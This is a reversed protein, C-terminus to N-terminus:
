QAFYVHYDVFDGPGVSDIVVDLKDRTVAEKPVDIVREVWANVPHFTEDAIQVGNVRVVIRSKGDPATRLLLKGERGLIANKLTFRESKGGGIRRGGDFMDRREDWPDALIKMDTWGNQPRSFAYDHRKESVLDGVDCEDRLEVGKPFSRPMAGTGLVHWDARYVVHEYGGCIVNGEVPFRRVVEPGFWTPFSGWWTPFIALLEPRESPPVREMLEITAPMGHVGARAFPLDHYGGLGIIDLGPKDSAYLIAGADGVLVRNVQQPALWRGLVLHQDRINRCARGFFWKQDRMKTELHQHGSFLLLAGLAVRLPRVRLALGVAVGISIAVGWPVRIDPMQGPPRTVVGVIQVVVVTGLTAWVLSPAAREDKSAGRAGAGKAGARSLLLEKAGLAALVLVWAVAPMTYRENQWRVQGNMAVLGLWLAVQAWLLVAMHRTRQFALPVLALFVIGVGWGVEGVIAKAWPKQLTEDTFLGRLLGDPALPGSFHYEINRFAAYGLNFRYDALKEEPTMFPNNLALKVIAGNASTEGTLARNALSQAALLLLAPLGVRLLVGVAVKPRKVYRVALATGFVACTGVAEPRTVFLAGCAIGLLWTSRRLEHTSPEGTAAKEARLYALLAISWVGLYLAVEMGSWLSWDLAGVSLLVPPLLYSGLKGHTDHPGDVFLRRTVLLLGFVCACAVYAAFVMLHEGRFGVLYGFALVFPYSLSTNGSSYGNGVTWEFPHGQATSRAYDFHIFVDDLPASWEGGTQKLMYGYFLRASALTLWAAWVAYVLDDHRALLRLGGRLKATV